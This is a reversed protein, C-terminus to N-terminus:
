PRAHIGHEYPVRLRKRIEPGGAAATPGALQGLPQLEMLFDGVRLPRQQQRRVIEFGKGDMLIIPTLLSPVHSAVADLDFSLLPDGTRVIQGISAHAEFGEGGLGATDCGVHLLIEAGNSSRLVVAHRAAAITVVEGDCPACLTAGTPDVALGDGMLKGAFVPDPVEELPSSWGDIPAVLILNSM